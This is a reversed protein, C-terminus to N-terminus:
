ALGRWCRGMKIEQILSESVGYALALPKNRVGVEIRERIALVDARTLKARPNNEGTHSRRNRLFSDLINDSDNGAYLHVPNGCPPNDCKHLVDMGEPIAGNALVFAIRHALRAGPVLICFAKGYAQEKGHKAGTWLWCPGLSVDHKPTPGLKDYKKWFRAAAIKDLVKYNSTSMTM